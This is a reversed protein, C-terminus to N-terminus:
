SFYHVVFSDNDLMVTGLFENINERVICGTFGCFLEFSDTKEPEDTMIYLVPENNQKTVSLFIADLPLEINFGGYNIPLKYKLIM